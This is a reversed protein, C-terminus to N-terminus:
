KKRKPKDIGPGAECTPNSKEAKTIEDVAFFANALAGEYCNIGIPNRRKMETWLARVVLGLERWTFQSFDLQEALAKSMRVRKM